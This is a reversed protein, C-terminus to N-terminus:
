QRFTTDYGRHPSLMQREVTQLFYWIRPTPIVNPMRSDSPLIMDETHSIVNPTRSDSPLIMDETHPYCKANWQRFTTDYGRHQYFMQREVTQLFYWIRPTPSLMQREVTQLYYWIRPTPSLMKREVTQLFYWIRPTPIVNPTRSESPLIM